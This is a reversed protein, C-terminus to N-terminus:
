GARVKRNEAVVRYLTEEDAQMYHALLTATTKWGGAAAVDTVPLHKRATAWARRYPHFDGGELPPLEALVEARILLDKAHHRTWPRGPRRPAPFLYGDGTAASQKIAALLAERVQGSIPLTSEVGEKDTEGRKRLRGFPAAKEQALRVDSARLQCVASVRWGLGEVFPGFLKQRDVEDAKARVAAYREFSAVPRKPSPNTPIHYGLLPNRELLPVGNVRLRMGWNVVRRLFELDAGITRNSPTATLKRKPVAITGARRDRIFRDFTLADLNGLEADAPLFARWLALRRRDEKVQAPRLYPLRDREFHDFVQAVTARGRVVPAASRRALLLAAAVQAAEALAREQDSHGLCRWKSNASARDWWRVYLHPSSARTCVTVQYGHAGVQQSWGM